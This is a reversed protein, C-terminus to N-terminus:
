IKRKRKVPIICFQGLCASSTNNIDLGAHFNHQFALSISEVDVSLHAMQTLRLPNGM